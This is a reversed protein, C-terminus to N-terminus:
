ARPPSDIPSYRVALGISVLAGTLVVLTAVWPEREFSTIGRVALMVAVVYWLLARLMEVM